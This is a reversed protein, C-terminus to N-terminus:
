FFRVLFIVLQIVKVHSKSSTDFCDMLMDWKLSFNATNRTDEPLEGLEVYTQIAKSTSESLVNRAHKVRMKLRHGKKSGM